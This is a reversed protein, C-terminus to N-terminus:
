ARLTAVLRTTSLLLELANEISPVVVDAALVASMATGELGLVAIALEARKFMPADNRGNGVAVVGGALADVFREKDEGNQVIQYDLGVHRAFSAVTGFTDATLITTHYAVAVKRLLIEVRDPVQGDLALTGNFDFVAHAIRLNGRGPIDIVV